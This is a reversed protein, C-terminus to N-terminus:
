GMFYVKVSCSCVFSMILIGVLNSADMKWKEKEQHDKLHLHLELTPQQQQEAAAASSSSSSLQLIDDNMVIMKKREEIGHEGERVKGEDEREKLYKRRNWWKLNWSILKMMLCVCKEEIISNISFFSSAPNYFLFSQYYSKSPYQNCETCNGKNCLQDLWWWSWIM